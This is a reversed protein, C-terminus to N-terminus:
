FVRYAYSSSSGITTQNKEKDYRQCNYAEDAPASEIAASHIGKELLRGDGSTINKDDLLTEIQCIMHSSMYASEVSPASTDAYKDGYESIAKGDRFICINESESLAVNRWRMSGDAAIVSQCGQFVLFTGPASTFQFDTPKILGEGVMEDYMAKITMKGTSRNLGPPVSYKSYYVNLATGIKNIKNIDAKIRASDVLAKGKFAMGMLLGIVVLVIALEVLTFGKKIM